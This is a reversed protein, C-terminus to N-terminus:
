IGVITRVVHSACLLGSVSPVFSLSSILNPDKFAPIESSFVVTHKKIGAKRLSSRLAKALRDNYTKYIDTIEFKTPDYKNGAGMASIIPINNQHARIILDIKAKVNDIADVIFDIGEPLFDFGTEPTYFLHHTNM